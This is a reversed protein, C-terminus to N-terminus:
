SSHRCHCFKSIEDERWMYINEVNCDLCLSSVYSACISKRWVKSLFPCLFECNCTWTALSALKRRKSQMRKCGPLLVLRLLTFIEKFAWWTDVEFTSVTHWVQENDKCSQEYFISGCRSSDVPGVPSYWGLRATHSGWHCVLMRMCNHGIAFLLSTLEASPLCARGIRGCLSVYYLNWLIM